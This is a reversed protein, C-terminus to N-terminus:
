VVGLAGGPWAMFLKVMLDGGRIASLTVNPHEGLFAHAAEYDAIRGKGTGIGAVNLAYIVSFIM